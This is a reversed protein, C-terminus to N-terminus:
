LAALAEDLTQATLVRQAIGDLDAASAGQVRAAVAPPLAGYRAALQKLVIEARGQAVGQGFYRRAFESQYEYKSADMAELARRAAEPLSHMVLDFYLMSREADLGRSVM